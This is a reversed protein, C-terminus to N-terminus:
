WNLSSSYIHVKTVHDEELDEEDDDDCLRSLCCCLFEITFSLGM